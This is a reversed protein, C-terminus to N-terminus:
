ESRELAQSVLNRFGGRGLTPQRQQQQQQHGQRPQRPTMSNGPRESAPNITEHPNDGQLSKAMLYIEEISFAGDPLKGSVEGMKKRYIGMDPHKAQCAQIETQISSGKMTTALATLQQVQGQIPEVLQKFLGSLQKNLASAQKKLTFDVLESNTMEEPNGEPEPLQEGELNEEVFKAQKGARKTQLYQQINPDSLLQQALNGQTVAETMTGFKQELQALRDREVEQPDPEEQEPAPPQLHAPKYIPEDHQDPTQFSALRSM